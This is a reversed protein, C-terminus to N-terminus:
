FTQGFNAPPPPKNNTGWAKAWAQWYFTQQGGSPVTVFGSTPAQSYYVNYSNANQSNDFLIVAGAPIQWAYSDELVFTVGSPVNFTTVKPGNGYTLVNTTGSSVSLPYPPYINNSDVLVFQGVRYLINGDPSGTLWKLGANAQSNTFYNSYFHVNTSLGFSECCFTSYSSFVYNSSVIVTDTNNPAPAGISLFVNAQFVSNGSIIINSNCFTGQYGDCGIAVATVESGGLNFQNGLISVNDGPVFEICNGGNATFNFLNSEITFPPNNGRGGNIAFGNGTINDITNYAFLSPYSSYQQYYEAIQFLNAFLNSRVDWSQYVNLATANGDAFTSNYIGLFGNTSGDISKFEEGRWHQVLVNTFYTYNMSVSLGGGMVLAGHTVDWGTGDKFSAAFGHQSTNGQQVGGDMTLYSFSLPYNYAIPPAVEMLWGRWVSNNIMTWAGQSLLTTANTGAGVFNIGGRQLVIGSQGYIGTHSSTLFLYTGAPIYITDNTDAGVAAIAAQFNASNNHGYTAFTNNLTAGCAQSVIINTGNVVNLITAVMDQCNPAISVAGAGFVEIAEGIASIPIQNTTTVVASNAVTSAFFQVADGVAGFNTVNLTNQAQVSNGLGAFLLCLLLWFRHVFARRGGSKGEGCGIPLLHGCAPHPTSQNPLPGPHPTSILYHPRGAQEKRRRASIFSWVSM